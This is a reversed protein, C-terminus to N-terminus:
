NQNVKLRIKAYSKVELFDSGRVRVLEGNSGDIAVRLGVFLPSKLFTQMQAETLDLVTKSDQSQNVFGAADVKGAGVAVPGIKLIPAQFLTTQDQGFLFEASAGLPLHNRLQAVFRGSSLNNEIDERTGQDIDLENADTEITQPPLRLALPAHIKVTGSVFDNSSVTGVWSDSGIRVQGFVRILSPLISIFNKINSNQQNLEIVSTEPVGPQVAPRIAGKVQLESIAGADNQGEVVIDTAAPFNIANQVFLEMSASEFFVSDLDVPVDITFDNQSIDIKKGGLKGSIRSFDLQSLQVAANVLDSSKVRILENGSDVTKVTWLFRVKQQGFDAWEPKLSHNSLDITFSQSSNRTVFVSDVLALGSADYFDPLKYVIWADLPFQGGITFSIAGNSVLAETVVISDDIAIAEENSFVQAPIKALAETVLLDSVESDISFNSSAEVLVPNGSSGPSDGSMRVSIANPMRLGKLDVTFYITQGPLVQVARSVSTVLTDLQTDWIELSLPSGLPVALNNVVKLTVNGTDIRVFSYDDYPTLAKKPASFSFPPVVVIQGDFIDAQPLIERLQATVSATGPSSVSVKGIERSFDEQMADIKLQDGVYYTDLDSEFEFSLLGTSDVSLASQDEAIETMTYVKSILPLTVDVDFSPASPKEFSCRLFLFLSSACLAAMSGALAKNKFVGQVLRRTSECLTESM